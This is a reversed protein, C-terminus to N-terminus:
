LCDCNIVYKPKLPGDAHYVRLIRFTIFIEVNGTRLIYQRRYVSGLITRM